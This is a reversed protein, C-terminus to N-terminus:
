ALNMNRLLDGYRPDGRVADLFPYSKIPTIMHDRVDIARTMTEFFEDIEGLGVHIWAFSTPPVYVHPPLARLRGLVARAGSADGSEALALGLWGIILPNGGALEAARSLAPIAEHFIRAERYVCGMALHAIFHAPEIELLLRGQEIGRDYQRDLWLMVVLWLRSFLGLPDLDLALELERVAEGLRGRPMLGTIAHRTRVVPSAPNLELARTMERAVEDWDFAVQKRYQALMAHAEALRDDIEVARVAHPMGTALAERPPVLAFFGRNWHLEALADHALAFRPDRAVAAEFCERAKLWSQPSQGRELHQRGQIYRDYAVLDRTPQRPPRTVIAAATVQSHRDRALDIQEGVARAVCREVEFIDSLPAEYRRTLVHTQDRARILQATLAFRDPTRRVSGEVVWDLTLEHAIDAVDKSTRKYHMATTRAIVGFNAPALASLETIIDDTIADTFYELSADGTSNVFPLVLIRTKPRPAASPERGAQRVRAIFRYGLRPLTEIYRPHDASDGLAERLRGVATNLSNEFDVFIDDSWLRHRLEDRTVVEGARSLLLTLVRFSQERLRIRVGRKLLRHAAPDVEFDDFRLTRHM